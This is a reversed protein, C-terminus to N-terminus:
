TEEETIQKVLDDIANETVFFDDWPFEPKIKLAKLKEAFEKIAKNKVENMRIRIVQKIRESKGGRSGIVAIDMGIISQLRDIEAKQRNILDLAYIAVANEMKVCLDTKEFPCNHCAESTTSSVCHELAKIVEDDTFKPDTM